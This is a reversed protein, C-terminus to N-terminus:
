SQTNRRSEVMWEPRLWELQGTLRDLERELEAQQEKIPRFRRPGAALLQRAFDTHKMQRFIQEIAAALNEERICTGPKHPTHCRYYVHGKQHEGLLVWGCIGCTFLGRFLFEHRHPLWHERRALHEQIRRNSRVM